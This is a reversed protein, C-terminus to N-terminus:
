GGYIMRQLSGISRGMKVPVQEASVYDGDAFGIIQFVARSGPVARCM